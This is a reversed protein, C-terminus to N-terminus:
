GRSVYPDGRLTFRWPLEVAQSIGIRPTAVIAEPDAPRVSLKSPAIWLRSQQTLDTGSLVRDLGFAQCLRGPGGCLARGRRVRRRQAAEETVIAAGPAEEHLGRRRGMLELGCCPEVARILVAEPCGTPATVANFCHYMGYTLYVYAHGAPGFMVANRPTQGRYAHCAPDDQTYAETESIRGVLLGEPDDHILYCNLLARAVTLTDQLYFARPLAARDRDSM